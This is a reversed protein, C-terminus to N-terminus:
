DLEDDSVVSRGKRGRRDEYRADDFAKRGKSLYTKFTEFSDPLCYDRLSEAHNVKDTSDFGYDRWYEYADEATLLRQLKLEAYKFAFYADAHCRQFPKLPNGVGSDGPNAEEQLKLALVTGRIVVPRNQNFWPDAPTATPAAAPMEVCNRLIVKDDALQGLALRLFSKDAEVFGALPNSLLESTRFSASSTGSGIQAVYTKVLFHCLRNQIADLQSKFSNVVPQGAQSEKPLRKAM